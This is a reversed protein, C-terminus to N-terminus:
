QDTMKLYVGFSPPGSIHMHFQSDEAKARSGEADSAHINQGALYQMRSDIQSKGFKSSSGM